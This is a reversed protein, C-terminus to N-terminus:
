NRLNNLTANAPKQRVRPWTCSCYVSVSSLFVSLLCPFGFLSRCDPFWPFRCPQCELCYPTPPNLFFCTWFLREWRVWRQSSIDGVLFYNLSGVCCNFVASCSAFNLFFCTAVLLQYKVPMFELDSPFFMKCWRLFHPLCPMWMHGFYTFPALCLM